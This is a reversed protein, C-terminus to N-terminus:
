PCPSCLPADIAREHRYRACEQMEGKKGMKQPGHKVFAQAKAVEDKLGDNTIVFSGPRLQLLDM